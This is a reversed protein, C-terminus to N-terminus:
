NFYVCFFVVMFGYLNLSFFFSFLSVIQWLTRRHRQSHWSFQCPSIPRSASALAQSPDRLLRQQQRPPHCHLDSISRSAFTSPSIPSPPHPSPKPDSISPSALTKSRLHLTVTVAESRLSPSHSLLHLTIPSLSPHYPENQTQPFCFFFYVLPNQSLFNFVRTKPRM